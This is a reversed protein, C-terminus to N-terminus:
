VYRLVHISAHARAAYYWWPVRKLLKAVSCALLVRCGAGPCQHTYYRAELAGCHHHQPADLCPFFPTAVHRSTWARSSLCAHTRACSSHRLWTARTWASSARCYRCLPVLATRGEPSHHLVCGPAPPPNPSTDTVPVNTTSNKANRRM